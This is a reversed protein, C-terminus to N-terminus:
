PTLGKYGKLIDCIHFKYTKCGFDDYSNNIYKNVKNFFAKKKDSNNINELELYFFNGAKVLYRYKEYFFSKENSISKRKRKREKEEKKDTHYWALICIDGKDLNSTNVPFNELKCNNVYTEIQTDSLTRYVDAYSVDANINCSFMVLLLLILYKM